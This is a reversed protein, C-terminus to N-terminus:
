YGPLPLVFLDLQDAPADAIAPLEPGLLICVALAVTTRCWSSTAAVARQFSSRAEFNAQQFHAARKRILHGVRFRTVKADSDACRHWFDFKAQEAQPM